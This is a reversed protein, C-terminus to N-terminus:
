SKTHDVMNMVDVVINNAKLWGLFDSIALGGIDRGRDDLSDM